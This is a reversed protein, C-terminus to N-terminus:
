VGVEVTEIIKKHCVPCQLTVESETKSCNACKITDKNIINMQINCDGCYHFKPMNLNQTDLAQDTMKNRM